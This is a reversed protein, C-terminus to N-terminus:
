RNSESRQTINGVAQQLLKAVFTQDSYRSSIDQLKSVDDADGIAGLAGFVRMLLGNNPESSKGDLESAVIDYLQRKISDSVPPGAKSLGAAALSQLDPETLAASFAAITRERDHILGTNRLVQLADQRDSTTSGNRTQDIWQSLTKGGQIEQEPGVPATDGTPPDSAADSENNTALQASDKAATAPADVAADTCGTALLLVTLLPLHPLTTQM